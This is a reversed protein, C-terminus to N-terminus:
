RVIIVPVSTARLLREAHSGLGWARRRSGHAGAVLLDAGAREIYGAIAAIVDGGLRQTTCAVGLGSLFAAAKALQAEGAAADDSVHVVDLHLQLAEAYRAALALANSSTEGGDYAVVPRECPSPHEGAVLVPRPAKRVIFTTTGGIAGPEGTLEGRRGVVVAEAEAETALRLLEQEVFGVAHALEAGLGAARVRAAAADALRRSREDMVAALAADPAVGPMGEVWTPAAGGLRPAELVRVDTITALVITSRFRRALTIAATLAAEAGPSGDLGVLLRSFM